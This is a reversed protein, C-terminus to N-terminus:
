TAMSLVFDGVSMPHTYLFNCIFFLIHYSPRFQAGWSYNLACFVTMECLNDVGPYARSEQIGTTSFVIAYHDLFHASISIPEVYYVVILELPIWLSHLTLIVWWTHYFIGLTDLAHHVNFPLTHQPNWPYQPVSAPYVHRKSFSHHLSIFLFPSSHSVRSHQESVWLSFSLFVSQCLASQEGVSLSLSLSKVYCLFSDYNTLQTIYHFIYLYKYRINKLM